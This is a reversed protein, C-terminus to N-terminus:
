IIGSSYHTRAQDGQGLAFIGTYCVSESLWEPAVVIRAVRVGGGGVGVWVGYGGAM